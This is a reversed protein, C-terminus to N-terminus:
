SENADDVEFILNYHGQREYDDDFQQDEGRNRHYGDTDHAFDFPLQFLPAPPFGPSKPVPPM